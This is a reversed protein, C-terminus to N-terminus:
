GYIADSKKCNDRLKIVQDFVERAISHQELVWALDDHYECLTTGYYYVCNNRQNYIECAEKPDNAEIVQFKEYTIEPNEMVGGVWTAVLYKNAM